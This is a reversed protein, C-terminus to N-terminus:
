SLGLGLALGLSLGLGLGLGLWAAVVEHAGGVDLTGHALGVRPREEGRERRVLGLLAVVVLRQSALEVRLARGAGGWLLCRIGRLFSHLADALQQCGPRPASFSRDDMEHHARPRRRAHRMIRPAM